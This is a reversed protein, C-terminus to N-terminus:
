AATFASQDFQAGAPRARQRTVRLYDNANSSGDVTIRTLNNLPRTEYFTLWSSGASSL